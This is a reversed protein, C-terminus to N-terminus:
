VQEMVDKEVEVFIKDIEGQLEMTKAIAAAMRCYHAPDEMQRGKRDKLYKEMVQYGGIHYAWVQPGVGEFYRTGNIYVRQEEPNYRPKEIKDEGSGSYKVDFRNFAYKDLLHVAVLESGLAAM